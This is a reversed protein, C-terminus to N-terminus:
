PLAFEAGARLEAGIATPRQLPGLDDFYLVPRRLPVLAHGAVQLTVFHGIPLGVMLGAKLSTWRTGAAEPSAVDIGRGALWHVEAGACPSVIVGPYFDWCGLASASAFRLRGGPGTSGALRVDRSPGYAASFRLAVREVAVGVGAGIEPALPGAMGMNAGAFAAVLARVELSGDGERRVTPSARQRSGPPEVRAEPNLVLALVLVAADTLARCSSASLRREGTVGDFDTTLVLRFVAGDHDITARAALAKRARKEPGALRVVEARVQKKSPCGAPAVWSTLELPVVREAHAPRSGFHTVLFAATTPGLLRRRHLLLM